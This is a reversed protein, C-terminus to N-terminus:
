DRTGDESPKVKQISALKGSKSSVTEHPRYSRASLSNATLGLFPLGARHQFRIGEPPVVTRFNCSPRILGKTISLSDSCTKM